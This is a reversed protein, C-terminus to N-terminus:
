RGRTPSKTDTVAPGRADRTQKSQAAIEAARAAIRDDDTILHWRTSRRQGSRRIEGATERERLVALIQDAKGNTARALEATSMGDSRGLLTTLKGAPVIEPTRRANQRPARRSRPKAAPANTSTLAARADELRVIEARVKTLRDEINTVIDTTM